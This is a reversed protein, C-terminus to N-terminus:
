KEKKDEKIAHVNQQARDTNEQLLDAETPIIYVWTLVLLIVFVVVVCISYLLLEYETFSELKNNFAKYYYSFTYPTNGRAAVEGSEIRDLLSQINQSALPGVHDEYWYLEAANDFVYITPAHEREIFFKSLFQNWRVVDLFAFIYQPNKKAVQRLDIIYKESLKNRPDVVAIAARPKFGMLDEFNHTGIESVLPFRRAFVWTKLDMSDIFNFVAFSELDDNIAIVSTSVPVNVGSLMSFIHEPDSVTGFLALGQYARAVNYFNREASKSKQPAHYIFLVLEPRSQKLQVIEDRTMEPLVPPQSLLNSIEMFGELTRLGTFQRFEGDRAIKITPYGKIKFRKLLYTNETCDIKGFRIGEPAKSAAEEFVPALNKCHRHHGLGLVLSVGVGLHM